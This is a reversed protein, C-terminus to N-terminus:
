VDDVDGRLGLGLLRVLLRHVLRGLPPLGAALGPAVTMGGIRDDEVWQTDQQRVVLHALGFGPGGPSMSQTDRSTIITLPLHDLLAEGGAEEEGEVLGRGTIGGFGM